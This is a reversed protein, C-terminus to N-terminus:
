GDMFEEKRINEFLDDISCQLIRALEPLKKATPMSEGNEWYSVTVQKVNLLTALQAQTLGCKKRLEKIEM